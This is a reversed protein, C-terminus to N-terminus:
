KHVEEDRKREEKPVCLEIVSMEDINKANM